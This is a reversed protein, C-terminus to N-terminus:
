EPDDNHGGGNIAANQDDEWGPTDAPNDPSQQVAPPWDVEQVPPMSDDVTPNTNPLTGFPAAM